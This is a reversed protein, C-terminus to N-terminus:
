ELTVEIRGYALTFDQSLCGRRVLKNPHEAPGDTAYFCLHGLCTDANSLGVYCKTTHNVAINGVNKKPNTCMSYNCAFDYYRREVEYQYSVFLGFYFPPFTANAIQIRYFQDLDLKGGDVIFTGKLPPKKTKLQIEMNVRCTTDPRPTRITPTILVDAEHGNFVFDSSYAYCTVNPPMDTPLTKEGIEIEVQVDSLKKVVPNPLNCNTENCVCFYGWPTKEGEYIFAQSDYTCGYTLPFYKDSSVPLSMSVDTIIKSYLPPPPESYIELPSRETDSSQQNTPPHDEGGITAKMTTELELQRDVAYRWFTNITILQWIYLIAVFLASIMLSSGDDMAIGYESRLTNRIYDLRDSSGNILTVGLVTFTAGSLLIGFPFYCAAFLFYLQIFFPKPNYSAFIAWMPALMNILLMLLQVQARDSAKFPYNGQAITALIPENLPGVVLQFFLLSFTVPQLFHLWRFAAVCSMKKFCSQYNEERLPLPFNPERPRWLWTPVEKAEGIKRRRSEQNATLSTPGDIEIQRDRVFYCYSLTVLFQWAFMLFVFATAVMLIIWDYRYDLYIGLAERSDKRVNSLAIGNDIIVSIGIQFFFLLCAVMGIGLYPAGVLFYIQSFFPKQQYSSLVAWMSIMLNGGLLWLQRCTREYTNGTFPLDTVLTFFLAAVILPQIINTWRFAQICPLRKGCRRYNEELVPLNPQNKPLWLWTPIEIAMRRRHLIHCNHTNKLHKGAASLM